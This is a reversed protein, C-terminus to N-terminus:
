QFWSCTACVLHLSDGVQAKEVAKSISRFTMNHEMNKITMDPRKATPSRTISWASKNPQTGLAKVYDKCFRQWDKASRDSM